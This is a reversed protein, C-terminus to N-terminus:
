RIRIWYQVVTSPPMVRANYTFRAYDPNERVMVINGYTDAYSQQGWLDLVDETKGTLGTEKETYFTYGEAPRGNKTYPSGNVMVLKPNGANRTGDNNVGGNYLLGWALNVQHQHDEINVNHNHYATPIIGDTQTNNNLGWAGKGLPLRDRLDPTTFTIDEGKSDKGVIYTKGDCPAWYDTTYDFAYSYVDAPNTQLVVNNTTEDIKGEFSPTGWGSPVDKNVDLTTNLPKHLTINKQNYIYYFDFTAGTIKNVDNNPGAYKTSKNPLPAVLEIGNSDKGGNWMIITGIPVAVAWGDVITNAPITLTGEMNAPDNSSKEIYNNGTLLSKSILGLNRIAEIDMNYQKNIENRVQQLQTDTLDGSAYELLDGTTFLENKIFIDRNHYAIYLLTITIFVVLINIIINKFM